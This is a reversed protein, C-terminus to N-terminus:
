RRFRERIWRESETLMWDVASEDMVGKLADLIYEREDQIAQGHYVLYAGADSGLAVRGGKQILCRINRKQRDVIDQLVSDPFRGSGIQNGVPAISPVWLTQPHEALAHICEEDMYFGHELSDAGAEIAALIAERGNIHLMAAMDEGHIINVLERIEEGPLPPCSMKEVEQFDLIGSVMIKIFDAGRRKAEAVLERFEKMDRYPFGVIKGYRGSRHIAFVPMRYEIGYEAAIKSAALGVGYTDGGDRLYNVGRRRYEELTRRVWDMKVGDRHQDIAERFYVADLIM